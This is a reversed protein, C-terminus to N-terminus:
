NIMSFLRLFTDTLSFFACTSSKKTYENNTLTLDIEFSFKFNPNKYSIRRHM